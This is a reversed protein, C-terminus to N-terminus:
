GDATLRGFIYGDVTLFPCNNGGATLFATLLSEKLFHLLTPFLNKFDGSNKQTTTPKKPSHVFFAM